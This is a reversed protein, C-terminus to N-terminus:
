AHTTVHLTFSKAIPRGACEAAMQRGHVFAPRIWSHIWHLLCPINEPRRIPVMDFSEQWLEAPIFLTGKRLKHVSYPRSHGVHSFIMKVCVVQDTIIGVEIPLSPDNFSEHGRANKEMRPVPKMETSSGSLRVCRILARLRGCIGSLM